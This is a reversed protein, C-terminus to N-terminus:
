TVTRNYKTALFTVYQTLEAQTLTGAALSGAIIMSEAWSGRYEPTTRGFLAMNKLTNTSSITGSTFVTSSDVYVRSSTNNFDLVMIRASSQSGTSGNLLAAGVIGPIATAGSSNITLRDTTGPCDHLSRNGAVANVERAVVLITFAQAVAATWTGRATMLKAALGSSISQLGNFDADIATVTPQSTTTAQIFDKNTDGAILNTVVSAGTAVTINQANWWAVTKANSSPTFSALTTAPVELWGTAVDREGCLLEIWGTANARRGQRLQIAM